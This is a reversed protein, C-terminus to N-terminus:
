QKKILSSFYLSYPELQIEFSDFRGGRLHHSNFQKLWGESFGRKEDAHVDV